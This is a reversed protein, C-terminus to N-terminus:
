RGSRALQLFGDSQVSTFVGAGPDFATGSVGISASGPRFRVNTNPTVTATWPTATTDCVVEAAFVGEAVRSRNLQEVVQGEISVTTQGSCTVTGRVLISGDREVTARPQVDLEITLATVLALALASSLVLPLTLV